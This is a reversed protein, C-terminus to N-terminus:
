LIGYLKEFALYICFAMLIFCVGAQFQNEVIDKKGLYDVIALFGFLLIGVGILAFPYTFIQVILYNGVALRVILVAITVLAVIIWFLNEKLFNKM